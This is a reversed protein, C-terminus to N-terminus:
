INLIRTICTDICEQKRLFKNENGKCGTYYFQSCQNKKYDYYWMPIYALCLGPDPSPACALLINKKLYYIEFNLFVYQYM